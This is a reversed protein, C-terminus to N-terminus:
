SAGGKISAFSVASLMCINFPFFLKNPFNPGPKYVNEIM